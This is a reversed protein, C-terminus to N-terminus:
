WIKQNIQLNVVYLHNITVDGLLRRTIDFVGQDLCDFHLNDISSCRACLIELRHLNNNIKRRMIIVYLIILMTVLVSYIAHSLYYYCNFALMIITFHSFFVQPCARIVRACLAPSEADFIKFTKQTHKRKM